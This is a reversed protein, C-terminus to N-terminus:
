ETSRRRLVKCDDSPRDSPRAGLRACGRAPCYVFSGVLSRCGSMCVSPAVIAGELRM